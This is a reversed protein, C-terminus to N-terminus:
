SVDDDDKKMTMGFGHKTSFILPSPATMPQVALLDAAILKPMIRKIIPLHMEITFDDLKPKGHRLLFELKAEDTIFHLAHCRYVNCWVVKIDDHKFHEVAWDWFNIMQDEHEGHLTLLCRQYYHNLYGRFYMRNDRWHKNEAMPHFPMEGQSYEAQIAAITRDSLRRTRPKM